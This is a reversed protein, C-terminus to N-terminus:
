VFARDRRAKRGVGRCDLASWERVKKSFELTRRGERVAARM